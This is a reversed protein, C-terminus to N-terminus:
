LRESQRRYAAPSIGFVRTFARTFSHISSYRTKEAIEKIALDPNFLLDEAASRMRSELLYQQPTTRLVKHFCKSFYDVQFYCADALRSVTWDANPDRAVKELVPWLRMRFLDLGEDTHKEHSAFPAIETLCLMLVAIAREHALLDNARYHNVATEVLNVLTEDIKIHIPHDGFVAWYRPALHFKFAGQLVLDFSEYGHRVLPPILVAYGRSM